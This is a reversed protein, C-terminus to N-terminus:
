SNLRTIKRDQAGAGRGIWACEPTIRDGGGHTQHREPGAHQHPAMAGPRHAGVEAEGRRGGGDEGDVVRLWIPLADHLSLTYPRTYIETTATDNFFFVFLLCDFICFSM